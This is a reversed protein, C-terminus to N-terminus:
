PQVECGDFSDPGVGVTEGSAVIMAAGLGIAAVCLVISLGALIAIM